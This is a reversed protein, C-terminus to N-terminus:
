KYRNKIMKVVRLKAIEEYFKVSANMYYKSGMVFKKMNEKALIKSKIARNEDIDEGRIAVDALITVVNCYIELIGGSLYIYENGSNGKKMISVMGPKISTLFSIHKPLIELGGESGTVHIKKVFDSFINGNINVIDLYFCSIM